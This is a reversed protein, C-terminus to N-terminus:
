SKFFFSGQNTVILSYLNGMQFLSITKLRKKRLVVGNHGFLYINSSTSSGISYTLVLDNAGDHNIDYISDNKFAATEEYSLLKITDDLFWTIKTSLCSDTYEFYKCYIRGNFFLDGRQQIDLTFRNRKIVTNRIGNEESVSITDPFVHTIVQNNKANDVHNCICSSTFYGIVIWFIINSSLKRRGM